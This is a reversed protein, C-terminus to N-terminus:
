KRKTSVKFKKKFSKSHNDLRKLLVHRINLATLPDNENAGRTGEAILKKEYYEVLVDSSLPMLSSAVLQINAIRKEYEGSPFKGSSLFKRVEFLDEELFSTFTWETFVRDDKPYFIIDHVMDVLEDAYSIMVENKLDEMFLDDVYSKIDLLHLISKLTNCSKKSFDGRYLIEVDCRRFSYLFSRSILESLDRIANGAVFQVRTAVNQWTFNAMQRESCLKKLAQLTSQFQSAAFAVNNLRIGLSKIQLDSSKSQKKPVQYLIERTPVDSQNEQFCLLSIYLCVVEHLQYVIMLVHPEVLERVPIRFLMAVVSNIYTLLNVVSDSHRVSSHCFETFDDQAYCARVTAILAESQKKTWEEVVKQFRKGLSFDVKQIESNMKIREQNLLQELENLESLWLVLEGSIVCSDIPVLVNAILTQITPTMVSAWWDCPQMMPKLIPYWFEFDRVILSKMKTTSTHAAEVTSPCEISQLQRQKAEHVVALLPVPDEVTPLCVSCFLPILYKLDLARDESLFMDILTWHLRLKLGGVFKTEFNQLKIKELGLGKRFYERLLANSVALEHMENTLKFSELLPKLDVDVFMGTVRQSSPLLLAFMLKEYLIFFMLQKAESKALTILMQRRSTDQLLEWFNCVDMERGKLVETLKTEIAKAKRSSIHLYPRVVENLTIELKLSVFTIVEYLTNQMESEQMSQVLCVMNNEGLESQICMEQTAADDHTRYLYGEPPDQQYKRSIIADSTIGSDVGEACAELHTILSPVNVFNYDLEEVDNFGTPLDLRGQEIATRLVYHLLMKPETAM